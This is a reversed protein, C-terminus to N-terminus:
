ITNKFSHPKQRWLQTKHKCWTIWPRSRFGQSEWLLYLSCWFNM